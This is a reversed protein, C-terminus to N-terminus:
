FGAPMRLDFPIGRYGISLGFFASAIALVFLTAVIQYHRPVKWCISEMYASAQASSYAKEPEGSPLAFCRAM